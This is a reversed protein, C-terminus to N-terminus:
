VVFVLGTVSVRVVVQTSNESRVISHMIRKAGSREDSSAMIM